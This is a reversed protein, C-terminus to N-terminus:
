TCITCAGLPIIADHVFVIRDFRQVVALECTVVLAIRDHKIAMAADMIVDRDAPDLASTAEDIIMGNAERM